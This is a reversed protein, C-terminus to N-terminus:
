KSDQYIDLCASGQSAPHYLHVKAHRNKGSTNKEVAVRLFSGMLVSDSKEELKEVKFWSGDLRTSDSDEPAIETERIKESHWDYDIANMITWHCDHISDPEFQSILLTDSGGDVTFDADQSMYFFFRKSDDLIDDECRMYLNTCMFLCLVVFYGIKKM